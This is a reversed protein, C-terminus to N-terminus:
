NGRSPRDQKQLQKVQAQLADIQAQQEKIAGVLIPILGRYNITKYTQDEEYGVIEQTTISEVTQVELGPAKVLGLADTKTGM